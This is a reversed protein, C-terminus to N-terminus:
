EGFVRKTEAKLTARVDGYSQTRIWVGDKWVTAIESAAEQEPTAKQVLYLENNENRFVALRGTASKKGSGTIPDKMINYGQGNIENWTMKIASGGVTDRSICAYHFSGVGGVFNQSAFGKEALREFIQEAREPTISDGYIVGIHNDLVKFGKENMTGGFVRWLLEVVGVEEPAVGAGFRRETGCLIDVPNGSDPRVVLRGDRRLVDERLHDLIGGPEVVNWISYTDSVLSVFGNPYVETILHKYAAEENRYATWSSMISHESAPITALIQGNDDGPYLDNVWEIASLTDSGLFSLLHGAGSAAASELSSQGRASFDHWQFNVTELDSGTKKAWKELIQRDYVALTAVSSPHWISSSISTEIYNVLWAFDPDTNEITFSPVQLPVLTGEKVQKFELPLYGKRHLARIHDTKVHEVGLYSKAREEYLRCVEDEDAAFFDVFEAEIYDKIYAQLGFNVVHTVGAVRTTRNTFNSYGKTMGEPEMDRHSTKYGDTEFLPAIPSKKM